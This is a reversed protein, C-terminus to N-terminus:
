SHPIFGFPQVNELAWPTWGPSLSSSVDEEAMLAPEAAVDAAADGDGASQLDSRSAPLPSSVHSSPSLPLRFRRAGLLFPADGNWLFVKGLVTTINTSHRRSM